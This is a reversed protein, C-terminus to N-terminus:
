FPGLPIVSDNLKMVKMTSTITHHSGGNRICPLHSCFAGSDDRFLRYNSHVKLGSAPWVPWEFPWNAKLPGRYGLVAAGFEKKTREAAWVLVVLVGRRLPLRGDLAREPGDWLKGKARRVTSM